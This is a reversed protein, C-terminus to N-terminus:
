QCSERATYVLCGSVTEALVVTDPDEQKGNGNPPQVYHLNRELQEMRDDLQDVRDLIEIQKQFTASGAASANIRQSLDRTETAVGHGVHQGLTAAQQEDVLSLLLLVPLVGVVPFLLVIEVVDKRNILKVISIFNSNIHTYRSLSVLPSISCKLLM